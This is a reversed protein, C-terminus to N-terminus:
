APCARMSASPRRESAGGSASGTGHGFAAAVKAGDPNAGPGPGAPSDTGSQAAPSATAIAPATRTAPSPAMKATTGSIPSSATQHVHSSPRLSAPGTTPAEDASSSAQLGVKRYWSTCGMLSTGAAASHVAASAVARPASGRALAVADRPSPTPRSAPAAMM